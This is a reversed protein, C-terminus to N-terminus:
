GLGMYKVFDRAYGTAGKTRNGFREPDLRCLHGLGVRDFVDRVRQDLTLDTRVFMSLKDIQLFEKDMKGLRLENDLRDGEPTGSNTIFLFTRVVAVGKIYFLAARLGATAKPSFPNGPPFNAPPRALNYHHLPSIILFNFHTQPSRTTRRPNLILCIDLLGFLCHM